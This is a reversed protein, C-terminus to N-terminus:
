LRAARNIREVRERNNKIDADLVFVRATANGIKNISNQDLTTTQNVAQPQLPSASSVSPAGGSSQGPIQTAIIKQVSSLGAAIVGAAGAIGAIGGQALAKTAGEYTNILAAAVSLGKGVVTQQGILSSLAGLANGVADTDAMRAEREAKSIGKRAESIQYLDENHNLEIERIKLANGRAATLEKRYQDDILKQKIDLEQRQVDFKKKALQVKLAEEKLILEREKAADEQQQKLLAADHEKQKKLEEANHEDTIEAVKSLYAKQVEQLLTTRQVSTIKKDKFDQEIAKNEKQLAFEAEKLKKQTQDRIANLENEHQLTTLKESYAKQNERAAREAERAKQLAEKEAEKEKQKEERDKAAEQKSIQRGVKDAQRRKTSQEEQKNFLEIQLQAEEEAAAKKEQYSKASADAEEKKAKIKKQLTAIEKQDLDDEKERVKALAAKRETFSKDEDYISEKLEALDKNAKAREVGLERLEQNVEQLLKKANAAKTFTNVVEDGFGSVTAKAEAWAGKFDGQFLKVLVGALHFARDIIVKFVAEIGAMIQGALKAGAATRTFADYLFKLGAVIGTILLIIPNAMLAKLMTGFGRAGESAKGFAPLASSLHENVAKLTSGQEKFTPNLQKTATELKQLAARHQESGVKANDLETKYLKIQERVEKITPATNGADVQLKAGIVVDSM